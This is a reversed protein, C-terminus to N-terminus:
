GEGLAVREFEQLVKEQVLEALAAVSRTVLVDRPTLAVDFTARAQAVVGLSRLSDGGLEFFNDHIGIQDLGLVDAWIGAIAEEAPTRPAVYGTSATDRDPAPLARRDLKGSPTLPLVDLVTFTAPIMYDPLTAALWGRLDGTGPVAAAAAPVLYAALQRRGPTDERAMVAADAIAPHATLAAQIEAPEIRFGRIKVQEDARGLYELQGGGTWRALDGTAYMREGPAGFPCATFRAATLGARGLYGRALQPGAIYLQGPIGPPVVRLDPDLVYVQTNRIPQGIPITTRGPTLPDSWTAVVTSETPGYSNIMRRGPAWRDALDAPCAEGGVIVTRFDPLGRAADPPVTALAAPPILAHTIHQRALVDALQDGLLPGDPPVVLAAGAPLSMCLELVSADFSPSSFQLVRDGPRVQYHEAEAAAFSALGTHSVVVGKPTGTSGSTYIVYAPHAPHLPATRDADAPAHGPMQNVAAVTDPDDVVLVPAPGLAALGAALDRRTVTLVPQADALMFAIRDPPYAPDVPLFAAGAKAAALQAVIIEASRPLALAVVREPGAGRAILLHALRNAATDLEAYTLQAGDWLVAAADPTRRAQATFLEGLTAPSVPRATDNWGALVQDREAATLLPVAGVPRDPDAAIATLLVRLHGAMREATEADFLDSSYELFGYLIGNTDIFSVSVDFNVEKKSFNVDEAALGEFAPLERRADHLTIMAQFLPTRSTDRDPQVADVVREFPVHQHAFADLTTDRVQTLLTTFSARPSIAARLVITNVFFGIIHELEARDRGAVATGVAIDDQGSWRSLLAQTAATLVMFLTADHARALNKLQATTEAPITFQCTAGNPTRVPPRPKDAPLELPALGSLQGTWYDLGAALATDTLQARQWVAYDAYQVPLPELAPERGHLAAAYLVSLERTLVGMSWGDTIVHHMTLLLVSEEAAVRVLLARFLPGQRLDFPRTYETGLLQDLAEGPAGPADTLDAMQVAFGGAPHIVQVGRGDHTDLTTRLSEHRAVLHQLAGTLAAVDLAGTLRAAAATVYQTSGPEFQDLFWLRQQAFSLPLPGDHPV